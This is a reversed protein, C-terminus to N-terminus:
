ARPQEIFLHVHLTVDDTVGNQRIVRFRRIDEFGKLDFAETHQMSFGVTATPNVGDIRYRLATYPTDPAEVKCIAYIPTNSNAPLTFQRVTGDVTIAQYGICVLGNIQFSAIRDLIIDTRM